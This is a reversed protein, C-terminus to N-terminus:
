FQIDHTFSMKDGLRVCYIGFSIKGAVLHDLPAGTTAVM